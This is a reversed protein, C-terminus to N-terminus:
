TQSIWQTGKVGGERYHDPPIVVDGREGKESKEGGREEEGGKKWEVKKREGKREVGRRRTRIPDSM